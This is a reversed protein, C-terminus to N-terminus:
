FPESSHATMFEAIQYHEEATGDNKIRNARWSIIAVNDKVYGKTPDIRDFSPSNEQRTEAFYDLKIGLIPCHTPFELDGFEITFEHDYTNKKKNRFKERMAAYIDSKRWERSQWNAGWKAFMKKNLQEERWERRITASHIGTKKAIQQIRQRSVKNDLNEAIQSYTLGENLWNKISQIDEPTIKNRFPM